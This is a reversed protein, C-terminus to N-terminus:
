AEPAVRGTMSRLIPLMCREEAQSGRGKHWHAGQGRRALEAELAVRGTMSRLHLLRCRVRVLGM